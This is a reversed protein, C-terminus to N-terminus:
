IAPGVPTLLGLGCAVLAAIALAPLLRRRGHRTPAVHGNRTPPAPQLVEVRRLVQTWDPREDDAPPTFADLAERLEDTVAAGRRTAAATRGPGPHADVRRDRDRRRPGRRDRPLRPRRLLPPLAGPAPAGAARRDRLPRGRRAAGDGRGPRSRRPARARTRAADATGRQRGGALG